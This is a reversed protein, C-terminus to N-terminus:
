LLGTELRPRLVLRSELRTRVRLELRSELRTRGRLALRLLLLGTTCYRFLSSTRTGCRAVCKPRREESLLVPDDGRLRALRRVPM